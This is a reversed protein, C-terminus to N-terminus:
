YGADIASMFRNVEASIGDYEIIRNHSPKAIELVTTLLEREYDVGTIPWSNNAPEFGAQRLLTHAEM